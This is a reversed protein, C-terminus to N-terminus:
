RIVVFKFSIRKNKTTLTGFYTGVPLDSTDIEITNKLNFEQNYLHKLEYGLSNFVSINILTSEFDKNIIFINDAAPNPYIEYQSELDNQYIGSINEVIVEFHSTDLECGNSAVLSVLYKGPVSYNHLPSEERSYNEDGFDWLYTNSNTSKNIFRVSKDNVSVNFSSKPSPNQGVCFYKNEIQKGNILYKSKLQAEIHWLGNTESIPIKLRRIIQITSYFTSMFINGSSYFISSDPRIIKLSFTDGPSFSRIYAYIHISDGASFQDKFYLIELDNCGNGLDIRKEHTTLSMITQDHYQYQNYWWSDKNMSNCPGAFPDIVNKDKDRVEFHLHPGMSIGSSGVFGVHEGAFITDGVKKNTLSNKKLHVYSSTSADKPHWIVVMNSLSDPATCNRDYQGDKRYIIVGTAAAVVEVIKNDMLHWKFPRFTFDTGKHNYGNSKDYTRDGCNYDLLSGVATDHDVYSSFFLNEYYRIDPKIKIPSIFVTHENENLEHLNLQNINNYVEDHVKLFDQSNLNFFHSFLILLFVFSNFMLRCKLLYRILLGCTQM